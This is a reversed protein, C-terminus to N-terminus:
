AAIIMRHDGKVAQEYACNLCCDKQLLSDSGATNVCSLLQAVPNRSVLVISTKNMAKSEVPSAVSTTLIADEYRSELPTTLPNHGCPEAEYLGWSAAIISDMNLHVIQGGILITSTLELDYISERITMELNSHEGISSPIIPQTAQHINKDAGPRDFGVANLLTHSRSNFVLQGETLIFLSNMTNPLGLTQIAAMYVTSSNSSAAVHRVQRSCLHTICAHIIRGCSRISWVSNDRYRVNLLDTIIRLISRYDSGDGPHLITAGDDANVFLCSFGYCISEGVAEWLRYLPCSRMASTQRINKWGFRTSCLKESGCTCSVAATAEAFALVLDDFASELSSSHIAWGPPIRWTKQCIKDIRERPYPGLLHMLGYDGLRGTTDFQNGDVGHSKSLPEFMGCCAVRLNEPCILGDEMFVVQLIDALCGTWKYSYGHCTAMDHPKAYKEIPLISLASQIQLKSEVQVKVVEDSDTFEILISKRLGQFVVVNEMTVFADEPFVITVMALIHGVGRSGTIRVVISEKGVARTIAHLLVAMDEPTIQDLFNNPVPKKLHKYADLIMEIQSALINGFGVVELKSGLTKAVQVLQSPSSIAMEQPVMKKSLEVLLRGANSNDYLNMICMSLLSIAQGGAYQAMLSAADGKRWGILLGLRDVRTSKCRQLLDPVQLAYKGNIPFLSGLKEMQLMALPAVDDASLATLTSSFASLGSISLSGVDAQLTIQSM